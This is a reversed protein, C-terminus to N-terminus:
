PNSGVTMHALWATFQARMPLESAGSSAWGGEARAADSDLGRSLNVWDGGHPDALGASCRDFIEVDDAFIMSAPSNLTSLFHVAREFMADPAGKLRFCQAHVVSRDPAIPHVVRIQQYQANLSINPFILNNFTDVGLIEAMRAEGRAAVLCERYATSVPDGAGPSLLGDAYFGGMFAHGSDFGVLGLNDWERRTFGNSQLQLKTQNGDPADDRLAAQRGAEVSSEHVIGPHITDNANEQHFKWNGRYAVRFGGGAIEVEGDPARDILNDIAARLPGLHEDLPPGDPALSAFIFGRYGSVRPARVLHNAADDVDFAKGYSSPHPVAELTGDLRFSWAHYPCVFREATGREIACLRAGRHACRNALVHVAGDSARTVIVEEAALRSRLFAGPERLQSEHAVYLWTRAFIREIELAFIDPDAYVRRHVGGRRVLSRLEGVRIAAM